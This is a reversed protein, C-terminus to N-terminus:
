QSLLKKLKEKRIEAKVIPIIRSLKSDDLVCCFKIACNNCDEGNMLIKHPFVLKNCIHREIVQCTEFQEELIKLTEVLSRM